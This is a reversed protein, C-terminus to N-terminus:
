HLRFQTHPIWLPVAESCARLPDDSAVVQQKSLQGVQFEGIHRIRNTPAPRNSRRAGKAWSPKRGDALHGLKLTSQKLSIRRAQQFNNLKTSAPSNRMRM